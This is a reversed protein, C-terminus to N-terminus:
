LISRYINKLQAIHNDINFQELVKTKNIKLYSFELIKEMNKAYSAIDNEQSLLGHVGNEIAEPIGSHYTSLIPLEMAMAEIIANPIGEMDGNEPIISHHFFCTAKQLVEIIEPHSKNGLFQIRDSLGHEETYKKVIDLNKGEGIFLMKVSQNNSNAIFERFAQVSILQGKKDNFSGVQVFLPDKEKYDTRIFIETNIGTYLIHPQNAFSINQAELMQLLAKCVFICHVNKKSVIKKLKEVYSKYRLKYSADYGRFNIVVPTEDDEINDFYKLGEYAFQCHVIDPNFHNIAASLRKSFGKDHWNLYLDAKELRWLIKSKLSNSPYAILASSYNKTPYDKDQNFAIYHVENEKSILEVDQRIFTNNFPTQDSLYLIRM